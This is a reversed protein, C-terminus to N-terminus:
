PLCRTIDQQQQEQNEPKCAAEATTARTIDALPVLVILAGGSRLKKMKCMPGITSDHAAVM